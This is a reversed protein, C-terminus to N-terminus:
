PYIYMSGELEGSESSIKHLWGDAESITSGFAYKARKAAAAKERVEKTGKTKKYYSNMDSAWWHFYSKGATAPITVSWSALVMKAINEVAESRKNENLEKLATDYLSNGYSTYQDEQALVSIMGPPFEPSAIRAVISYWVYKQQEKANPGTGTQEAYIVAIAEKVEQPLNNIDKPKTSLSGINPDKWGKLLIIGNGVTGYKIDKNIEVIKDRLHNHTTQNDKLTEKALSDPVDGSKIVRFYTKGKLDSKLELEKQRAMLAEYNKYTAKMRTLEGVTKVIIIKGKDPHVIHGTNAIAKKNEDYFLVYYTGKTDKGVQETINLEQDQKAEPFEMGGVLKLNHKMDFVLAYKVNVKVDKEIIDPKIKKPLQQKAKPNKKKKVKHSQRQIKPQVKGEVQQVTHAVEHALLQKGDNSEPNYQGQKFYIDQGHTFAKANINESMENANSNTHVNVGGLDTGTHQELETKTSNDLKQGQGKTSHLQSDFADTTQMNSGESKANIESVPNQTLAAKSIKTDGQTVGEAVKDAQIEATDEPQSIELKAQVRSSHKDWIRQIKENSLSSVMRRIFEVGGEGKKSIRKKKNQYGNDYTKM